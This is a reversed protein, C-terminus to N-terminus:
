DNGTVSHGRCTQRGRLLDGIIRANTDILGVQSMFGETLGMQRYSLTSESEGAVISDFIFRVDAASGQDQSM